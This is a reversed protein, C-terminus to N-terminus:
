LPFIEYIDVQYFWILSFGCFERKMAKRGIGTYSIIYQNKGLSMMPPCTQCKLLTRRSLIISSSPSKLRDKFITETNQSFIIRSVLLLGSRSCLQIDCVSLNDAGNWILRRPRVFVPMIELRCSSSILILM